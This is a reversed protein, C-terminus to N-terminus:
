QKTMWAQNAKVAKKKHPSKNKISDTIIRGDEVKVVFGGSAKAVLDALEYDDYKKALDSCPMGHGREDLYCIAKVVYSM